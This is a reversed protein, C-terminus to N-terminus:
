FYIQIIAQFTVASFVHTAFCCTMRLDLKLDWEINAGSTLFFFMVGPLTEFGFPGGGRFLFTWLTCQLSSKRITPYRPKGPLFYIVQNYFFLILNMIITEPLFFPHKTVEQFNMERAESWQM